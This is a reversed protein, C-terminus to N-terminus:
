LTLQLKGEVAGTLEMMLPIRLGERDILKIVARATENDEDLVEFECQLVVGEATPQEFSQTSILRLQFPDKGDHITRGPSECDQSLFLASLLYTGDLRSRPGRDEGNREVNVVGDHLAVRKEKDRKHQVVEYQDAVPRGLVFRGAAAFLSRWKTLFNVMGVSRAEGQIEFQEGVRHIEFEAQAVKMQGVFADYNLRTSTTTAGVTIPLLALLVIIIRQSFM